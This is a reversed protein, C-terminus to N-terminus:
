SAQIWTATLVSIPSLAAIHAAVHPNKDGQGEWNARAMESAEQRAQQARHTQHVGFALAALALVVVLVGLVRM